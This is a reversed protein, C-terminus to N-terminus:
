SSDYTFWTSGNYSFEVVASSLGTTGTIVGDSVALDIRDSAGGVVKFMAWTSGENVPSYSTVDVSLDNDLNTGDTAADIPTGTFNGTYKLGTGNDIISTAATATVSSNARSTARLSFSESGEYMSDSESTITVRVYVTGINGTGAPVTPFGGTASANFVTWTTGDLSFEITPTVLTATGNIVSFNLGDGSAADVKFMAYTSGENVPGYGTVFVSLDNDPTASNNVTGDENFVKGNGDDRITAADSNSIPTGEVTISASLSFTEPGEFVKPTDNTTPVSVYFVTVNQPLTLVNNSIPLTQKNSSNDYYYAERYSPGYDSTPLASGPTLDNTLGLTVSTGGVNSNSDLSVRFIADSGESVDNFAKVLLTGKVEHNLDVTAASYVTTGGNNSVDTTSGSADSAGSDSAEQASKTEILRVSLPTANGVYSTNEDAFPVFRLSDAARLVFATADSSNPVVGVTSGIKYEWSGKSADQTLGRIAVGYFSDTTNGTDLPDSFNGSFLSSVTAWPPSTDNKFVSALSASGSAVPADNVPAINITVTYSSLSYDTGDSVKFGFGTFPSGFANAPPTYRLKSTASSGTLLNPTIEANLASVWSTGNNYELIGLSPLSTIKIMNPVTAQNNEIDSYTGFDSVNFYYVADEKSTVSDNTSIPPDNVPTVDITLTYTSVSFDVGDSVRYVITTYNNGNENQAPIYRFKISADSISYDGGNSNISTWVGGVNYQLTGKDPRTVIKITSFPQNEVDSYNGFDATTLPRVEDELIIITDNTSIPPDNVATVNHSLVVTSSSYQTTTGISSINVGTAFSLSTSISSDILLASLTPAPGNFNAAPLFRLSHGVPLITAASQGAVAEITTWNSTGNASYQWVGKSLDETYSVLAIGVFSNASTGGIVQDKADSYNGTFLSSVAAGPPNTTDENIASLTASGSAVPADNRATVSHSLVVTGSSITTSGGNISVDVTAGSTVSRPTELLRVTLTPAPGNFDTRPLFRLVDTSALTLAATDLGDTPAISSSITTWTAGSDSSYQWDGKSSARTYNIIAIGALTNASTGGTVQDASDNFRLAFLNSVSNGPPNLNDELIAALSSAGTAIPADNVATVSASLVVTGSSFRTTDGNTSVNLSGVTVPTSSSEILRVTLSPVSGNYNAAPLFRLRYSAPLAFANSDDNSRAPLNTWSTGLESYQWSGKTTDPSHNRVAIGALTQNTVYSTNPSFDKSDSFSDSFIDSITSITPSANDEFVEPLTATPDVVVPADNVNLVSMDVNAYASPYQIQGSDPKNRASVKLIAYTDTGGIGNLGPYRPDAQAGLDTTSFHDLDPTFNLAALASNVFATNGEIQYKIIKAGDNTATVGSPWNGDLSLTGPRSRSDLEVVVVLDNVPGSPPAYTVYLANAEGFANFSLTTDENFYQEGPVNLVPTFGDILTIPLDNPTPDLDVGGNATGGDDQVQFKITTFTGATATLQFSGDRNYRAVGCFCPSYRLKEGTITAKPVFEGDVVTKWLNSQFNFGSGTGTLTFTLTRRFFDTGNQGVDFLFGDSVMTGTPINLAEYEPTFPASTGTYRAVYEFGGSGNTYQEFRYNGTTSELYAIGYRGMLRKDYTVNSFTWSGSEATVFQPTGATTSQSFASTRIDRAGPINGTRSTSNEGVQVQLAGRNPVPPTATPNPREPVDTFVVGLFNNEEPNDNSDSMIFQSETLTIFGGVYASQPPAVDTGAPADNVPTINITVTGRNTTPSDSSFNVGDSVRVSFTPAASLTQNNANTPPVYRLAGAGVGLPGSITLVEDVAVPTWGGLTTGGLGDPTSTTAKQLVGTLTGGIAPLTKVQISWLPANQADTYGFDFEGFVYPIDELAPKTVTGVTTNSATPATNADLLTGTAVTKTPDLQAGGTPNSIAFGFTEPGEAISDEITTVTVTKSNGSGFEGPNFTFTGSTATFDNIATSDSARIVTSYDISQPQESDADRTIIFTIPNGEVVSSPSGVVVSFKPAADNDVITATVENGEPNTETATSNGALLTSPNGLFFGFTEDGEYISDNITNVTVTVSRDNAGFTISAPTGIPIGT